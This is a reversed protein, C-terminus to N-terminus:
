GKSSIEGRRRECSFDGDGNRMVNLGNDTCMVEGATLMFGRASSIM